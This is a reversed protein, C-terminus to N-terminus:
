RQPAALDGSMIADDARDVRITASDFRVAVVVAEGVLIRRNDSARRRFLTFRQAVRIGTNMGQDIVLM